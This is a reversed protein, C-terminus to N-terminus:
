IPFITKCPKKYIRKETFIYDLPIDHHEVHFVQKQFELAVGIKIVKKNKLYRDYFGGGYGLRFCNENFALLPM